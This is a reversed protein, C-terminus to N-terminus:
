NNVEAQELTFKFCSFEDECYSSHFWPLLLGAQGNTQLRRIHHLAGGCAARPVAHVRPCPEQYSSSRSWLSNRGKFSSVCLEGACLCWLTMQVASTSAAVLCACVPRFFPCRRTKGVRLLKASVWTSGSEVNRSQFGTNKEKLKSVTLVKM